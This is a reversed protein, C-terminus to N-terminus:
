RDCLLGIVEIPIGGGIVVREIGHSVVVLGIATGALDCWPRVKRGSFFEDDGARVIRFEESDFLVEDLVVVGGDPPFAIVITIPIGFVIVQNVAVDQRSQDPEIGEDKLLAGGQLDLISVAFLANMGRGREVSLPAGEVQGCIPHAECAQGLKGYLCAEVPDVVFAGFATPCVYMCADSALCMHALRDIWLRMWLLM